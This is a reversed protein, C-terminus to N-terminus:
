IAYFVSQLANCYWKIETGDRYVKATCLLATHAMQTRPHHKLVTWQPANAAWEFNIPKRVGIYALESVLM